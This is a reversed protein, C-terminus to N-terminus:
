PTLPSKSFRQPRQPTASRGFADGMKQRAADETAIGVRAASANGDAPSAIAPRNREHAVNREFEANLCELGAARDHGVQVEVCPTDEAAGCPMAVVFTAIAAATSATSAFAREISWVWRVM